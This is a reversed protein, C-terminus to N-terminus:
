VTIEMDVQRLSDSLKTTPTTLHDLVTVLETSRARHLPGHTWMRLSMGRQPDKTYIHILM